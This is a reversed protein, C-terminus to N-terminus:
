TSYFAHMKLICNELAQCICIGVGGSDCYPVSNEDGLDIGM